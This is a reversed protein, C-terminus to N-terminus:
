SGCSSRPTRRPWRSCAIPSGGTRTSAWSAWAPPARRPWARSSTSRSRSTRTSCTVAASRSSRISCRGAAARSRGPRACRARTPPADARPRPLAAPRDRVLPRRRRVRRAGGHSPVDLAVVRRALAPAEHLPHRAPGARDRDPRLPQQVGPAARRRRPRRAGGGRLEDGRDDPAHPRLQDPAAPAARCRGRAVRRDRHLERDPADPQPVRRPGRLVGGRVSRGAARTPQHATSWFAGNAVDRLYCFTGWNDRPPTRAGAPSPSTRGAATGAARTPSWSTIGATRCCSCRPSRRTPGASRRAGRNRRRGARTRADSAPTAPLYFASARPIREQLLLATAQFAPDSAFRRQMRGDLLVQALSLLTMGQHHAMYSRVLPTRQGRPLRAPTYDIAEYFGLEGEFGEAALRQLNACAEEPSVMLALASAYPAVVLDDALGRKLGLGPVGFARYQYTLRVDLLNYGSESIGWPVGRHRGYEIQRKVAAKCTQDLLTDDYGPMVLLPMLYEFMSGSWSLLVPEGAATTLLRGLAFWSEQPLHGQAIAVFTCLRAESALLDYYSADRRREAVNYGISLLQRTRDFLFSWEMEALDIAQARSATSRRSGHGPPAPGSATSRRWSASRRSRPSGPSTRRRRRPPRRAVDVPGPSALDDCVDRCQDALASAWGSAERETATALATALARSEAALRELVLRGDAVTAPPSECAADLAKQLRTM